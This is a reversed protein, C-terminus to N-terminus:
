SLGITNNNSFPREARVVIEGLETINEALMINPLTINEKDINVLTSIYPTYGVMSASVRYKGSNVQEFVFEGNTNTIVGKVLASDQNLLLVTVSPLNQHHDSVRGQISAQSIANFFSCVLFLLPVFTKM